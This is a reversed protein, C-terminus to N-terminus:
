IKLLTKLKEVEKRLNNVPTKKRKSPSKGNEELVAFSLESIKNLIQQLETESETEEETETETEEDTETETEENEKQEKQYESVIKRIKSVPTSPTIDYETIFEATTDYDGIPNLAALATDEFPSFIKQEPLLELEPSLFKKCVAIIRYATPKSIGLVKQTYDAFSTFDGQKWIQSVAIKQLATGVAYYGNVAATMGDIITRTENRLEENTLANVLTYNVNM